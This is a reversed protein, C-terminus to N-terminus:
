EGLCSIKVHLIVPNWLFNAGLLFLVVIFIVSLHSLQQSSVYGHSLMASTIENAFTAQREEDELEKETKEKTRKM